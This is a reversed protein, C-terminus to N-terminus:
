NNEATGRYRFKAFNRGCPITCKSASKTNVYGWTERKGAWKTLFITRDLPRSLGGTASTLPMKLSKLRDWKDIFSFEISLPLSVSTGTEEDVFGWYLRSDTTAISYYPSVQLTLCLTPFMRTNVGWVPKESSGNLLVPVVKLQPALLPVISSIRMTPVALMRYNINETPWVSWMGSFVYHSHGPLVKWITVM